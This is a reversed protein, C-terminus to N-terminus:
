GIMEFEYYRHGRKFGYAAFDSRDITFVKRVRENEAAVVLSADAPDMPQDAYRIMLEFARSLSADDLFWVSLGFRAHHDLIAVFPAVLTQRANLLFHIAQLRSRLELRKISIYLYIYLKGAFPISNRAVENFGTRSNGAHSVCGAHLATDRSRYRM